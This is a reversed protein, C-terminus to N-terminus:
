VLCHQTPYRHMGLSGTMLLTLLARAYAATCCRNSSAALSYRCFDQPYFVASLKKTLQISIAVALEPSRRMVAGSEGGAPFSSGTELFCLDPSRCCMGDIFDTTDTPVLATFVRVRDFV